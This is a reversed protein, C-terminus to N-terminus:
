SKMMVTLSRAGGQNTNTGSGNQSWLKVYRCGYLEEPLVYANSATPSQIQVLGGSADYLPVFTGGSTDCVKFGISAATWTGPMIVVGGAHGDMCLVDSLSAGNAITMVQRAAIRNM